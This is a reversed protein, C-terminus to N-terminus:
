APIYIDFSAGKGPNGTATIIGNHNEVIKRVISLGIGTGTIKQKGHLRRFIDFIHDKYKPDFGIGKDAISIHCYEKRSPLKLDTDGQKITTAKIIIHPSIDTKSFKLANDILNNMLQRFQLPIVNAYGLKHVKIYAHKKDITEKFDAIVIDVIKNLDTNELKRELANTGSYALLDIMLTQMHNATDRMRDLYEKGKDSLNKQEDSLIRSIFVQLKRLPEQLDHSSIYNFSKLENNARMLETARMEKEENQFALEKNAIVLEAARKEKEKNQFTLEKNAIILESARKGKEKNQYALEKNVVALEAERKGKEKNQFTLEKNAVILEAARKEKERNQFTLEKNAIILEAARKEKEKNQFTLEKNAIILEAARKEKEKNQYALEKNAIALEAARKGKEKNQYALEKNAIILEAARKEKEKNQFALEKNAILLEAARKEKGEIQSALEALAISLEKGML